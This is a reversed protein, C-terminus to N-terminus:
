KTADELPLTFNLSVTRKAYLNKLQCEIRFLAANLKDRQAQMRTQRDVLVRINEELDELNCRSSKKTRM